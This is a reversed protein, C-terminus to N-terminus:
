EKLNKYAGGVDGGCTGDGQPEGREMDGIILGKVAIGKEKAEGIIGEM